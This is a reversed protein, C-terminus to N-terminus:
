QIADENYTESVSADPSGLLAQYDENRVWWQLEWTTEDIYPYGHHNFLGFTDADLMTFKQARFGDKMNSNQQIVTQNFEYILIPDNYIAGMSKFHISIQDNARNIPTDSEFNFANGIPDNVPFSAGTAAIKQVFRRSSDLVLRYIRTQYDIENEIIAEPYPIINGQSVQSMYHCWVYFLMTIPDGVINRFNATIDYTTYDRVIGDVMSFSEQYSGPKSTYVPVDIDRWGSMSILQNSLIPIFAQDNDVLISGHKKMGSETDLIARIARPLSAEITTLLPTFERIQRLNATQMNMRPRTFFTMGYYDRNIQVSNPQQRHNIGHITDTIASNISGVASNSFISNVVTKIKDTSADNSLLDQYKLTM